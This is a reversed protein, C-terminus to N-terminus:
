RASRVRPTTIIPSAAPPDLRAPRIDHTADATAAALRRSAQHPTWRREALGALAEQWAAEPVRARFDQWMQARLLDALRQELRQRRRRALGGGAELYELHREFTELVEEIGTGQLATALLVPADWARDNARLELAM